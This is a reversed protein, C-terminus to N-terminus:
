HAPLLFVDWARRGVAFHQADRVKARYRFLNGYQDTRKSEKYDLSLSAVGVGPLTQLENPESVADHNADRWLRLSSFVADQSDVEGDGNGGNLPKDFEALALFGHSEASPPQPTYNGFLEAGNDIAGNGNRDLALWADNSAATTWSIREPYGDATIDFDVGASLDTLSFGDGNLDILIPSSRRVCGCTPYGAWILPPDGYISCDEPEGCSASQQAQFTLLLGQILASPSGINASPQGQPASVSTITVRLQVSGGVTSSGTIKYTM